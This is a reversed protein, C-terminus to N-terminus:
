YHAKPKGEDRWERHSLGLVKHAPPKKAKAGYHFDSHSGGANKGVWGGDPKNGVSVDTGSHRMRVKREKGDHTVKAVKNALAKGYASSVDKKDERTLAM